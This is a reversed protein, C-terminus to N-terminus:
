DSFSECKVLFGSQTTHFQISFQSNTYRTPRDYNNNNNKNNNNNDNTDRNDGKHV